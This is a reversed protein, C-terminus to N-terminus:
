SEKRGVTLPDSREVEKEPQDNNSEFDNMVKSSSGTQFTQFGSSKLIFNSLSLFITVIFCQLLSLLIQFVELSLELHHLDLRDPAIVDNTIQSQTWKLVVPSTEQLGVLLEPISQCSSCEVWIESCVVSINEFPLLSSNFLYNVVM